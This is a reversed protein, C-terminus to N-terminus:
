MFTQSTMQRYTPQTPNTSLGQGVATALGVAPASPRRARATALRATGTCPEASWAEAPLM